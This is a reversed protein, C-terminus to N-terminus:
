ESDPEIGTHGHEMDIHIAPCRQSEVPDLNHPRMDIVPEEDIKTAGDKRVAVKSLKGVALNTQRVREIGIEGM